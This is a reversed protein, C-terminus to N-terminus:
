PGDKKVKKTDYDVAYTESLISFVLATEMCWLLRHESNGSVWAMIGSVILFLVSLGALAERVPQPVKIIVQKGKHDM